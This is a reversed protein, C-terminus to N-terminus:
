TAKRVYDVIQESTEEDWNALVEFELYPKTMRHPDISSSLNDLVRRPLMRLLSLRRAVKEVPVNQESAIKQIAPPVQRPM